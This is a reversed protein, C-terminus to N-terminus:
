WLKLRARIGIGGSECLLQPTKSSRRHDIEVAM